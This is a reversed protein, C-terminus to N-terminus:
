PPLSRGQVPCVEALEFPPPSNGAKSHNYEYMSGLLVEPLEELATGYRYLIKAANSVAQRFKSVYERARNPDDTAQPPNQLAYHHEAAIQQLRVLQDPPLMTPRQAALKEAM